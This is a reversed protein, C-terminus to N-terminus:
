EQLIYERQKHGASIGRLKHQDSLIINETKLLKQEM